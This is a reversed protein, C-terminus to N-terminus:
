ETERGLDCTPAPRGRDRHESVAAVALAAQYRATTFVVLYGGAAVLVVGIGPSTPLGTGTILAFGALGMASCTSLAVLAGECRSGLGPDAGRM